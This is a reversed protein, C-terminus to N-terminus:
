ILLYETNEFTVDPAVNQFHEVNKHHLKQQLYVEAERFATKIGLCIVSRNGTVWLCALHEELQTKLVAWKELRENSMEWPRIFYSNILDAFSQM